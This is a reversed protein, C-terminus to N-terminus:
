PVSEPISRPLIRGSGLPNLIEVQRDLRLLELNELLRHRFDRSDRNASATTAGREIQISRVAISAIRLASLMVRTIRHDMVGLDYARLANDLALHLAPYDFLRPIYIARLQRTRWDAAARLSRRLHLM